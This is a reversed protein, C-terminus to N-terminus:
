SSAAEAVPLLPVKHCDEDGKKIKHGLHLIGTGHHAFPHQLLHTGDTLHVLMRGVYEHRSEDPAGRHAERRHARRPGPVREGQGSALQRDWAARRCDAFSTQKAASGRGRPPPLGRRRGSPRGAFSWSASVASGGCGVRADSMRGTLEQAATRFAPLHADSRLRASAKSLAHLMARAAELATHVILELPM